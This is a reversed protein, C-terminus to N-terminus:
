VVPTETREAITLHRGIIEPWEAVTLSGSRSVGHLAAARSMRWATEDTLLAAVQAAFLLPDDTAFFGGSLGPHLGAAGERTAVLPVGSQLAEISKLKVGAGYRVPSIAVRISDYFGHLDEVRGVFDVQPGALWALNDPPDGGTVRLRVDPLLVRLAPLVERGFWLLGDANPSGPGAAWGAVLGVGDREHFGRTTPRADTRLPAVVIVEGRAHERVIAAEEESICVVADVEAFIRQELARAQDLGAQLRARAEETPALDLRTELRRWAVAEADYVVPIGPLEGALLPAYAEYVNPRSIVVIDFDAPRAALHAPLDEVLEVGAARLQAIVDEDVPFWHQPHFTVDLRDSGALALLLDFMRGYGAGQSPVPIREDVVLVRAPSPLDPM